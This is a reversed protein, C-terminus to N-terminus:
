KNGYKGGLKAKLLSIIADSKHWWRYYNNKKKKEDYIMRAVRREERNYKGHIAM